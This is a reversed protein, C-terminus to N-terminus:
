PLVQHDWLYHLAPAGLAVAYVAAPLSCSTCHLMVHRPPAPWCRLHHWLLPQRGPLPRNASVPDAHRALVLHANVGSMGFSSTGAAAEEQM